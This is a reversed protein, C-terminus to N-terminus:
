MTREILFQSAASMASAAPQDAPIHQQQSTDQQQKACAGIHQHALEQDCGSVRKLRRCLPLLLLISLVKSGCARRAESYPWFRKNSLYQGFSLVNSLVSLERYLKTVSTVHFLHQM